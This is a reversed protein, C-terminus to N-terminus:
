LSLECTQLLSYANCHSMNFITFSTQNLHKDSAMCSCIQFIIVTAITNYIVQTAYKLWLLPNITLFLPQDLAWM